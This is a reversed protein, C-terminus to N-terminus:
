TRVMRLEINVRTLDDKLTQSQQVVGKFEVKQLELAENLEAIREPPMSLHCRRQCLFRLRESCFRAPLPLKRKHWDREASVKALEGGLAGLEKRTEDLVKRLRDGDLGLEVRYADLNAKVVDLLTGGGAGGTGNSDMESSAPISVGAQSLMRSFMDRERIAKDMQVSKAELKSKLASILENAEDVM